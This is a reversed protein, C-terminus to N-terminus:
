RAHGGFEDLTIGHEKAFDRAGWATSFKEAKWKDTTVSGDRAIYRTGSGRFPQPGVFIVWMTLIRQAM